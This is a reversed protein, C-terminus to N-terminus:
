KVNRYKFVLLELDKTLEEGVTVDQGTLDGAFIVKLAEVHKLVVMNHQLNAANYSTSVFRYLLRAVESTLHYGFTGARSKISLAAAKLDKMANMNGSDIGKYATELQAVDEKIWALSEDRMAEIAEQAKELVEPTIINRLPEGLAIKRKIAHDPLILRPTYYDEELAGTNVPTPVTKRREIGGLPCASKRRRDPGVYGPSLVFGRPFDVLQELRSFLTQSSFPKVVFETIGSDRAAEVDSREGRGTLMIIPLARSPSHDDHRLQSVLEIGDMNPMSWETVLIDFSRAKLALEADRGNDVKLVHGFGMALLNQKLVRAMYKDADAILIKVGKLADKQKLSRKFLHM